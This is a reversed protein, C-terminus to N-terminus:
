GLRERRRRIMSLRILDANSEGFIGILKKELELAVEGKFDGQEIIERYENLLSSEPLIPPKVFMISQLVDTTSSGYSESLPSEICENGEFNEGLVRIHKKAVTSLVQPSHTTMIFQINPFTNKLNLVINQQWDPHLHLEIEDILIVGQGHLPNSIDPNLSILRRAIDAILSVYVQQGKSINFINIETGDNIVKVEVRGTSRYVFVDSISSVAKVIADKVIERQKFYVKSDVKPTDSELKKLDIKKRELTNWLPHSPEQAVTELAEIERRLEDHGVNPASIIFNDLMIFWQLFDDINGTGDLVKKDLADFRSEPSINSARDLDFTQRSKLISREVSYYALLPINIEPRELRMEAFNIVRFLNALDSYEELQSVKSTQIGKSSRVLSGIYKTKEGLSINTIVEANEFSGINVDSDDLARGNRNKYVIRANIWSFSRAIADLITTKGSGNNGILITVDKEFYIEVEKFKRFFLLSLKDLTIKNKPKNIETTEEFKLEDVCEQQYVETQVYNASLLHEQFLEFKSSINGKRANKDLHRINKSKM